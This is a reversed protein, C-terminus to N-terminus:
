GADTGPTGWAAYFGRGEASAAAHTPPQPAVAATSVAPQGTEPDVLPTKCTPCDTRGSYWKWCGLCVLQDRMGNWDHAGIREPNWGTVGAHRGAVAVGGRQGVPGIPPAARRAHDPPGPGSRDRLLM